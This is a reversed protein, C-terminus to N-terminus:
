YTFEQSQQSQDWLNENIIYDDVLNSSIFPNLGIIKLSQSTKRISNLLPLRGLRM